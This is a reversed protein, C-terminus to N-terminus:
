LTIATTTRDKKRGNCIRNYQSDCRSEEPGGKPKGHWGNQFLGHRIDSCRCGREPQHCHPCAKVQFFGKSLCLRSSSGCHHLQYHKRRKKEGKCDPEPEPSFFQYCNKDHEARCRRHATIHHRPIHPMFSHKRGTNNHQGCQEACKCQCAPQVYQPGRSHYLIEM